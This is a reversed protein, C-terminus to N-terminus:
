SATARGLLPEMRAAADDQMNPLVLFQEGTQRESVIPLGQHQDRLAAALKQQVEKRTKGYFAKRKGDPLTLRARPRAAQGWQSTGIRSASHSLSSPTSHDASGVGARQM